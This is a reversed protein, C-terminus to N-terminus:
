WIPPRAGPRYASRAPVFSSTARSSGGRLRLTDRYARYGVFSARLAYRGPALGGIQYYGEGNSSTGRPPEDPEDLLELRVNVGALPRGTEANSTFGRLAGEQEQGMAPRALLVPAGVFVWLM